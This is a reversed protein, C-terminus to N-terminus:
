AALPKGARQEIAILEMKGLLGSNGSLPKVIWLGIDSLVYLLGEHLIARKVQNFSCLLGNDSHSQDQALGKEPVPRGCVTPQLQGINYDGFFTVEGVKAGELWLTNKLVIPQSADTVDLISVEKDSHQVYVYRRGAATTLVMDGLAKGEFQVHGIVQASEPDHSNAWAAPPLAIGVVIVFL